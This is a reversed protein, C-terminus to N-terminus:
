EQFLIQNQLARARAQLEKALESKKKELEQKVDDLFQKAQSSTASLIVIFKEEAYCIGYLVYALTVLTSKGFGRPAAIALKGPRNRTLDELLRYIEKHADSPSKKLRELLYFQMFASLSEKAQARRLRSVHRIIEDLM